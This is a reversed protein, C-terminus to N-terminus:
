AGIGKLAPAEKTVGFKLKLKVTKFGENM